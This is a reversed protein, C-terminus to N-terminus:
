ALANQQVHRFRQLSFPQLVPTLVGSAIQPALELAHAAALTVGSHCTTVFVGPVAESQQYIPFGDASMIRLAGWTRVVRTDRLAPFMRTAREALASLVGTGVNDDLGVEEVSDGILVTGEDTQRLTVVPYPMFRRMRELVIIQGRQPRVPMDLGFDAALRRNDLGAALVVQQAQVSGTPGELVVHGSRGAGREVKWEPRYTGGRKQFAAHLARFLRLPNVHGDLKSYSGGVVDPGIGPYVERLADRDLMQYDYREFGPQSMLAALTSVRLDMERQSLCLQFGGPQELSVDVGTDERLMQSLSPWLRASLQTWSSYAPLGMGKGQVWVLGFNGRSARWAIDGEDLVVVRRGARVLGYGVAMGVLGGGVVAVDFREHM